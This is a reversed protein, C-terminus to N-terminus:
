APVLEPGPGIPQEPDDAVEEFDIAGCPEDSYGRKMSTCQEPPTIGTYTAGCVVCMWTTM